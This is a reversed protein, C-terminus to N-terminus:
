ESRDALHVAGTGPNYYNEREIPRSDLTRGINESLLLGLISTRQTWAVAVLRIMTEYTPTPGEGLNGARKDKLSQGNPEPAEDLLQFYDGTRAATENDLGEKSQAKIAAMRHINGLERLDRDSQENITATLHTICERSLSAYDRHGKAHEELVSVITLCGM